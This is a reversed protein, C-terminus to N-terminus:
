DTPTDFMSLLQTLEQIQSTILEIGEPDDLREIVIGLEEIAEAVKGQKAYVWARDYYAPIYSSDISIVKDFDQIGEAFIPCKSSM